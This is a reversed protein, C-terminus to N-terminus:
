TQWAGEATGHLVRILASSGYQSVLSGLASVKGQKVIAEWQETTVSTPGETAMLLDYEDQLRGLEGDMMDRLPLTAMITPNIKGKEDAITAPLPFLPSNPNGDQVLAEHLVLVFKETALMGGNVQGDGRAALYQRAYDECRMSDRLRVIRLACPVRRPGTEEFLWVGGPVARFPRATGREAGALNPGSM